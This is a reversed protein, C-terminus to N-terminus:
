YFFTETLDIHLKEAYKSLGPPMNYSLHQYQICDSSVDSLIAM